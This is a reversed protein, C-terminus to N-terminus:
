SELHTKLANLISATGKGPVYLPERGLHEKICYFAQHSSSKWAFLFYDASWSLNKLRDSCVKDSNLGVSVGPYLTEISTKARKGASTSLTYIAINKDNLDLEVREERESHSSEVILDTDVGFDKCLVGILFVEDEQLRHSFGKICSYTNLFYKLREDLCLSSPAPNLALAECINLQWSLMSYSSTNERVLELIELLKIYTDPPPKLELTQSFLNNFIELDLNSKREQLGILFLLFEGLEVLNESGENDYDFFRDFIKIYHQNLFSPFAGFVDTCKSTFEVLKSKQSLISQVDWAKYEDEILKNSKEEDGGKIM